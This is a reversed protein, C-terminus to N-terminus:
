RWSVLIAGLTALVVALLKAKTAKEKLFVVAMIFIFVTSLQNLPAAVSARTYKMGAMWALLGVYSGLLSAPVMTKWNSPAALPGLLARRRPLLSLLGTLLVASIGVRLLTAWLLPTRGLVPKIIVIGAAMTVMSLTGLTIGLLLSRRPPLGEEKKLSILLIASVILLAAFLQRVSMREGIFLLSFLIVFLSYLCDVVATLGAGLLNLCFFFLTDSLAIGLAGSLILLGYSQWPVSPFFPKGLLVMTLIILGTALANKFLNLSLPHVTRGCIRFILVAVAWAFAAGVSLFEGLYRYTEFSQFFPAM